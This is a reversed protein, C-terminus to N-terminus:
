EFRRLPDPQWDVLLNSLRQTDGHCYPDPTTLRGLRNLSTGPRVIGKTRVSRRCRAAAAGRSHTAASGMM